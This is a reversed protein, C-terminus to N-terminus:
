RGVFYFASWYYPHNYRPLKRLAVSARRAAEPLSVRAAERYFHQMWELSAQADVRWRTLLVARAGAYILARPMGIMEGVHIGTGRGTECANLTVLRMKDLPLAFMEAATLKGDDPALPTLAIHSRLPRAMFPKEMNINFEAHATIHLIDYGSATRRLYDKTADEPPVVKSGPYLRAVAEAEPKAETLGPGAMALVAGGALNDDARLQSLLGASPAYSIRFQEDLYRGDPAQLVQFPLRYLDEHPIVVLHNTTVHKLVPQVLFLFLQRSTKTDFPLGRDTLTRCVANVKQTLYERPLFVSVVHVDSKGIHWVIVQTALVEYALVDYSGKAASEQAAALSVTDATVLQLLEPANTRVEQLLSRHHKELDETEQRIKRTDQAAAGSRALREYLAKRGAITARLDRLRNYLGKAPETLEVRERTMVLDTLTRARAAESFHFAEPVKDQQLLHLMPWHYFDVKPGLLGARAEIDQLARYDHELLKVAQRYRTLAEDSLGSVSALQAQSYTLIADDGAEAAWEKVLGVLAPPLEEGVPSIFERSVRVDDPKVPNFLNINVNPRPVVALKREVSRVIRDSQQAVFDWGLKQALTRAKRADELAETLKATIHEPKLRPVRALQVNVAARDHCAYFLLANDEVKPTLALAQNVSDLASVLEDLALDAECRLCLADFLTKNDPLPASVRVAEAAIARAEEREKTELLRTRGQQILARARHAPAKAQRALTEGEAYLKLAKTVQRQLRHADGAMTRCAAAEGANGADLFARYAQDLERVAQQLDDIRATKDGTKGAHEQYGAIRAAARRQLEQAQPEEAATPSTVSFLVALTGGILHTVPGITKRAQSLKLTQVSLM